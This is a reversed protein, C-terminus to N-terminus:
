VRSLSPDPFLVGELRAALSFLFSPPRVSGGVHSLGGCWKGGFPGASGSAGLPGVRVGFFVRCGLFPAPAPAADAGLRCGAETQESSPVDRGWAGPSLQGSLGTQCDLPLEPVSRHAWGRDKKGMRVQKSPRRGLNQRSDRSSNGGGVILLLSASAAFRCLNQVSCCASTWHSFTSVQGPLYASSPADQTSSSFSLLFALTPFDGGSAM